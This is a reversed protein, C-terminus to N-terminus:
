KKGKRKFMFYALGGIVLLAGAGIGIIANTSMGKSTKAKPMNAGGMDTILPTSLGQAGIKQADAKTVRADAKSKTRIDRRSRMSKVTDKLQQKFDGSACAFEGGNEGDANFFLDRDLNNGVPANALQAEFNIVRPSNINYKM